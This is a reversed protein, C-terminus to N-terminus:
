RTIFPPQFLKTDKRQGFIIKLEDNRNLNIHKKPDDSWRGSLYLFEEDFGGKIAMNSIADFVAEEYKKSIPFHKGSDMDKLCQKLIKQSLRKGGASIYHRDSKCVTKIKLAISKQQLTEKEDEWCEQMMENFRKIFFDKSLVVQDQEELGHDGSKVFLLGIFAEMETQQDRRITYSFLEDVLGKKALKTVNLYVGFYVCDKDNYMAYVLNQGADRCLNFIIPRVGTRPTCIRRWVEEHNPKVLGVIDRYGLHKTPSHLVLYFAM